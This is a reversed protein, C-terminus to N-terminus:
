RIRKENVKTRTNATPKYEHQIHLQGRATSSVVYIRM